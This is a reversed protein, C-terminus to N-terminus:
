TFYVIEEELIEFNNRKLSLYSFLLFIKFMVKLTPSCVSCFNEIAFIRYSKNIEPLNQSM